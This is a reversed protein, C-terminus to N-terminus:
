LASAQKKAKRAEVMKKMREGMAQRQADSLVRKKSGAPRRGLRYPWLSCWTSQKGDCPCLKVENASGCVCDLCKERISRLPTLVKINNM